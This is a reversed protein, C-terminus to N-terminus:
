QLIFAVLSSKELLKGYFAVDFESDDRETDVEWKKEAYKVVFGIGMGPVQFWRYGV